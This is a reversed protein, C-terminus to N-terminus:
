SVGAPHERLDPRVNGAVENRSEGSFSRTSKIKDSADDTAM